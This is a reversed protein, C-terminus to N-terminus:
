KIRIWRYRYAIKDNQDAYVITLKHYKSTSIIKKQADTKIWPEFEDDFFVVKDARHKLLIDAAAGQNWNQRKFHHGYRVLQAGPHTVGDLLYVHFDPLYYLAQMFSNSTAIIVSQSPNFQKQIYDLKKQFM